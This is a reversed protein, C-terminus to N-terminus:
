SSVDRKTFLWYIVLVTEIVIAGIPGLAWQMFGIIVLHVSTSMCAVLLTRLVSTITNGTTASSDGKSENLKAIKDECAAEVVHAVFAGVLAFPSYSIVTVVTLVSATVVAIKRILNLM